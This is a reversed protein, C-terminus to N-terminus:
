HCTALTGLIENSAGPGVPEQAQIVRVPGLQNNKAFTSTAQGECSRANPVGGQDALAPAATVSLVLGTMLGVGFSRSRLSSLAFM